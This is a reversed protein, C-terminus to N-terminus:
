YVEGGGALGGGKGGGRGGGFYTQTLCPFRTIGERADGVIDVCAARSKGERSPEARGTPRRLGCLGVDSVVAQKIRIQISHTQM